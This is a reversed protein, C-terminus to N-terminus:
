PGAPMGEVVEYDDDGRRAPAVFSVIEAGDKGSEADHVVNPEIVILYGADVRFTRGEVHFNVHGVLVLAMQEQDHKHEPFRSGPQMVYHSATMREGHVTQRVLGEYVRAGEGGRLPVVEAM